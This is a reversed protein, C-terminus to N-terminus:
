AVCICETRQTYLFFPVFLVRCFFSIFSLQRGALLLGFWDSRHSEHHTGSERAGGEGEARARHRGLRWVQRHAPARSGINGASPGRVDSGVAGRGGVQRQSGRRHRAGAERLHRGPSLRVLRLGILLRRRAVGLAGLEGLLGSAHLRPLRQAPHDGLAQRVRQELLHVGLLKLVVRQGLLRLVQRRRLPGGGLQAVGVGVGVVVVVVVVRRRRSRRRGRRVERRIRQARPGRPAVLLPQVVQHHEFPVHLGVVNGAVAEVVGLKDASVPECVCRCHGEQGGASGGEESGARRM